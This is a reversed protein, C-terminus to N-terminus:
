HDRCLIWFVMISHNIEEANKELIINKERLETVAERTRDVYQKQSIRLLLLPAMMLLAGLVGEERYGFIFITTIFGIGVYITVLWAYQEKWVHNPSQHLDIGM